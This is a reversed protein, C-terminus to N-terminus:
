RVEPQTSLETLRNRIQERTGPYVSQDLMFRMLSQEHIGLHQAAKRTGGAFAVYAKLKKRLAADDMVDQLDWM